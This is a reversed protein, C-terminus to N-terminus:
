QSYVPSQSPSYICRYGCLIISANADTIDLLRFSTIFIKDTIVITILIGVIIKLAYPIFRAGDPIGKELVIQPNRITIRTEIAALIM